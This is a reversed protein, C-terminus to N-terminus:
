AEAAKAAIAPHQPKRDPWSEGLERVSGSALLFPGSKGVWRRRGDQTGKQQNKVGGSGWKGKGV